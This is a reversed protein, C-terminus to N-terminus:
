AVNFTLRRKRVDAEVLRVKVKDGVEFWIRKKGKGRYTAKPILGEVFHDELEVFVGFPHVSLVTAKFTNDIFDKMFFASELDISQREVKEAERERVSCKEAIRDLIHTEYKYQEDSSILTDLVRHVILDPYRRIPSTFHTYDELALGFHMIHKTSYIAKNLSRLVMMSIANSDNRGKAQNLVKQIDKPSVDGSVKVDLGIDNLENKLEMIAAEDPKEHIRYISPLENKFIHGAVVSNAIIMFEEIIGNAESVESKQIDKVRGYRDRIIRPEPFYFELEGRELRKKKLKKYLEHMLNIKSVVKESNKDPKVENNIVQSVWTYTLRANSKIVSNYIKYDKSAAAKILFLRQPKLLGKKM